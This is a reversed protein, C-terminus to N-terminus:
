ARANAHTNPSKIARPSAGKPPPTSKTALHHTTNRNFRAAIRDPYAATPAPTNPHSPNRQATRSRKGCERTAAPTFAVRFYHFAPIKMRISLSFISIRMPNLAPSPTPCLCKHLPIHQFFPFKTGKRSTQRMQNERGEPIRAQFRLLLPRAM